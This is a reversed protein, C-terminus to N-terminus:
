RDVVAVVVDSPPGERWKVVHAGHSQVAIVLDADAVDLTSLTAPHLAGPANGRVILVRM